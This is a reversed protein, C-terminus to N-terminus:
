WDQDVTRGAPADEGKKQFRWMQLSKEGAQLADLVRSPDQRGKKQPVEGAKAAGMPGSKEGPKADQEQGAQAQPDDAGKQAQQEEGERGQQQGDPKKADAQAGDKGQEGGPKPQEGQKADDPKGGQDGQPKGDEGPTKQGPQDPAEKEGGQKGADDKNEQSKQDKSDGDKKQQDDGSKDQDSKQDDGGKDDPKPKRKERLAWELNYRADPDQPDLQLARRYSEIAKDLQGSQAEANGLNLYARAKLADDKSSLVRRFEEAAEADKHQQHLTAGRGFHAESSPAEDAARDFSRLADDFKSQEYADVGAKVLPVEAQFPNCACLLAILLPATRLSM